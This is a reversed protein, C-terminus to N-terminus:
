RLSWNDLLLHTSVSTPLKEAGPSIKKFHEVQFCSIYDAGSNHVTVGPIHCARFLINYTLSTLVIDRVLIMVLPHKSTQKNIVDVIAANDTYFHAIFPSDFVTNEQM